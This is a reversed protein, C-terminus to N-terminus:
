HSTPYTMSVAAYQQDVNRSQPRFDGGVKNFTDYLTVNTGTADKKFETTTWGSGNYTMTIPHGENFGNLGKPASMHIHIPTPGKPSLHQLQSQLENISMAARGTESTQGNAVFEAGQFIMQLKISSKTTGTMDQNAKAIMSKLAQHSSSASSMNKTDIRALETATQEVNEHRWNHCRITGNLSNKLNCRKEASLNLTEVSTMLDQPNDTLKKFLQKIKNQTAPM